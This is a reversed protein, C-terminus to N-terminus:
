VLPAVKHKSSFGSYDTSVQQWDLAQWFAELYAQPSAHDVWYAHEWMDLGFVPTCKIDTVGMMLNNDQNNTQTIVLKGDPLVGLWM